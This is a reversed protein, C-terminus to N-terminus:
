HNQKLPKLLINYPKDLFNSSKKKDCFLQIVSSTIFLFLIGDFFNVCSLLFWYFFFISKKLFFFPFFIFFCCYCCFRLTVFYFKFYQGMFSLCPLTTTATWHHSWFSICRFIVTMFLCFRLMDFLYVPGLQLCFMEVVFHGFCNLM